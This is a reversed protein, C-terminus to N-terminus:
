SYLLGIVAKAIETAPGHGEPSANLNSWIVLTLRRRPDGAVFTQFGPIEGTHGYLPGFKGIALGYGASGNQKPDASRPSDLRLRQWKRNLLSGDTLARAWVTMDRATSIVAGAAGAWSPNSNTVDHPKLTGERARRLAVPPLRETDLTSVNTGYMYGRPHPSPITSVQARPLFTDHMGVRAFLRERFLTALTEGYLQQAIEGLLVTNTNCYEFTAGPVPNPRARYAEDLLHQVRFSHRPHLDLTRNLSRLRSYNYLGSHMTLLQEITIRSGNPVDPRYRSVPDDLSLQGSEALQLILTGTATKTVSGIRYRENPSLPRPEELVGTGYARVIQERPTRVVLMAGPVRLNTATIEFLSFLRKRPLAARRGAAMAAAPLTTGALGGVVVGAGAASKLLSRRSIATDPTREPTDHGHDM